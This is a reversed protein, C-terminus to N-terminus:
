IMGLQRLDFDLNIPQKFHTKILIKHIDIPLDEITLPNTPIAVLHFDTDSFNNLMTKDFAFLGKEAFEIFCKLYTEDDM